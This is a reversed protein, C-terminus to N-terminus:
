QGDQETDDKDAKEKAPGIFDPVFVMLIVLLAVSISVVRGFSSQMFYSLYGIFPVSFVPKGIVEDPTVPNSDIDKNADGKTIFSRVGDQEVVEYIRHTAITSENLRFTIPDGDKLTDTDVKRVYIVSGTLYTPEMSGSMVTYIEFGFLRVGALLIAIIGIIAILTLTIANWVKKFKPTM